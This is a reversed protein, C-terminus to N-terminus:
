NLLFSGPTCIYANEAPTFTTLQSSFSEAQFRQSCSVSRNDMQNGTLKRELSLNTKAEVIISSNSAEFDTPAWGKYEFM